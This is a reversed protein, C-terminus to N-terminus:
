VLLRQKELVTIRCYDDTAAILTKMETLTLATKFHTNWVRRLAKYGCDDDGPVKELILDKTCSKNTKVQVPENTSQTNKQANQPILKTISEAIAACISDEDFFPTKDPKHFVHSIAVDTVESNVVPVV